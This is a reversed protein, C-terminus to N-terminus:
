AGKWGAISTLEFIENLLADLVENLLVEDLVVSVEAHLVKDLWTSHLVRNVLLAHPIGDLLANFVENLLAHLVGGLLTHLVRNQVERLM